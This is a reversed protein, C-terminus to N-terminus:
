EGAATPTSVTYQLDNIVIHFDQRLLVDIPTSKALRDGDISVSLCVSLCVSLHM